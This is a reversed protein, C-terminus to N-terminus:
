NFFQKRPNNQFQKPNTLNSQSQNRNQRSMNIQFRAKQMTEQKMSLTASKLCGQVNFDKLLQIHGGVEDLYM